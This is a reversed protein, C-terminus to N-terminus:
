PWLEIYDNTKNACCIIQKENLVIANGDCSTLQLSFWIIINYRHFYIFQLFYFAAMPCKSTAYEQIWEEILKM